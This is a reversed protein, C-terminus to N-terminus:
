LRYPCQGYERILSSMLAENPGRWLEDVDRHVRGYVSGVHESFRMTLVREAPPPAEQVGVGDRRTSGRVWGTSTLHWDTWEHSASM